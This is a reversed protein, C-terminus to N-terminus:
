KNNKFKNISDASIKIGLKSEKKDGRASKYNEKGSSQEECVSGFLKKAVPLFKSFSNGWQNYVVVETGDHLHIIESPKLFYRKELDPNSVIWERVITLPRVVGRKKSRIESPFVKELDNMSVYPNEQVYKRVVELVFRRKNFFTQGNDFSYRTTDRSGEEPDQLVNGLGETKNKDILKIKFNYKALVQDVLSEDHKGSLLAHRLTNRIFESDVSFKKLNNIVKTDENPQAMLSTCYKIIKPLYFSNYCLLGCILIGSRDKEDINAQIVRVPKGDTNNAFYIEITDSFVLCMKHQGISMTKSIFDAKSAEMNGLSPSISLVPVDRKGKETCLSMLSVEKVQDFGMNEMITGNSKKWGLLRLCSVVSNLYLSPNIGNVLFPKMSEVLELWNEYAQTDAIVNVPVASEKKKRKNGKKSPRSYEAFEPYKMLDDYRLDTATSMYERGRQTIRWVGREPIEVFLARRLWQLSWGVRDHLQLSTGGKTKLAKDEESLNFFDGLVSIMDARNSDGDTLHLMFPFLFDEFKPIAM